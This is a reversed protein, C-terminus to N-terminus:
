GVDPLPFRTKKVEVTVSRVESLVGLPVTVHLSLPAPPVNEGADHENDNPAQEVMYLGAELPGVITVIM